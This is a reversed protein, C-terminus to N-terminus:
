LTHMKRDAAIRARYEDWTETRMGEPMPWGHITEAKPDSTEGPGLAVLQPTMLNGYEDAERRLRVLARIPGRSVPGYYRSCFPGGRCMEPKCCGDEGCATCEICYDLPGEKRLRRKVLQWAKSLWNRFRAVAM